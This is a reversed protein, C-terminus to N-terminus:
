PATVTIIKSTISGDDATGKVILPVQSGPTPNAPVPMVKGQYSASQGATITNPSLSYPGSDQVQVTINNLKKNGDNKVDMSLYYTSNSTKVFEQHTVSISARQMLGQIGGNFSLALVAVIAIVVGVILAIEMTQSMGKRKQPKYQLKYM